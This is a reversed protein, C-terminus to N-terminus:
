NHGNTAEPRPWNLGPEQQTRGYELQEQEPDHGMARLRTLVDLNARTVELVRTFVVFEGAAERAEQALEAGASETEALGANGQLGSKRRRLERNLAQCCQALEELREADLRALAESAERVLQRLEPRAQLSAQRKGKETETGIM